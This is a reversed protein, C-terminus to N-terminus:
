LFLDDIDLLQIKKTTTQYFNKSFGRSCILFRTLSYGSPPSYKKNELQDIYPTSVDAIQNIWKTEIIRSERDEKSEVILDIQTIKKKWYCGVNYDINEINLKKFIRSNRNRRDELFNFILLEFAKGSYNQIFYGKNSKIVDGTFLMGKKNEKIRNSLPELIQFYFHLFPDRMVYRAGSNNKKIVHGMPFERFIIKYDILRSIITNITTKPMGTRSVINIESAGEQGLSRLIKKVNEIADIDRFDLFLVNGLENLFISTHIFFTKNIVRFFNSDNKANRIIQNLYYPVGGTMMYILCTQEKTWDHPKAYYDNIELLTFPLVILDSVTRLGYLVGKIHDIQRFFFRSSSGALIVKINDLHQWKSEWVRKLHGLIGSGKKSLWQVEDFILIVRLDTNGQAYNTMNLFINKWSKYEHNRTSLDKIKVYQDWEEAIRNRCNLDNEDAFGSFYFAHYKEAIKELITTKGIRRRGRVHCFESNPSRIWQSIVNIEEKRGYFKM